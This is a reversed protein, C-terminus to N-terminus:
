HKQAQGPVDRDLRDVWEARYLCDRLTKHGSRHGRLPWMRRRLGVRTPAYYARRLGDRVRPVVKAALLFRASPDLAPATARSKPQTGVLDNLHCKLAGVQSGCYVSWRQE